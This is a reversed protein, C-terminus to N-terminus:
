KMHNAFWDALELSCCLGNAYSTSDKKGCNLHWRKCRHPFNLNISGFSVCQLKHVVKHSLLLVTFTFSYCSVLQLAIRAATADYHTLAHYADTSTACPNSPLLLATSPIRHFTFMPYHSACQQRIIRFIIISYYYFSYQSSRLLTINFKRQILM